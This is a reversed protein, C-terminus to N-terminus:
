DNKESLSERDIFSNSSISYNDFLANEIKFDILSIKSM